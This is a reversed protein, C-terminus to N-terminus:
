YLHKITEYHERAEKLAHDLAVRDDKFRKASDRCSEDEFNKRHYSRLRLNLVRIALSLDDCNGMNLQEMTTIIHLTSYGISSLSPSKSGRLLGAIEAYQDFKSTDVPVMGGSVLVAAYQATIKYFKELEDLLVYSLPLDIFPEPPDDPLGRERRANRTRERLQELRASLDDM